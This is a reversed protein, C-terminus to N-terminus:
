LCNTKYIFAQSFLSIQNKFNERTISDSNLKKILICGLHVKEEVIPIVNGNM